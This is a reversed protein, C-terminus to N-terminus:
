LVMGATVPDIKLRSRDLQAGSKATTAEILAKVPAKEFWLRTEQDGNILHRGLHLLTAVVPVVSPERHLVNLHVSRMMAGLSAAHYPAANWAINATYGESIVFHWTAPPIVVLEGPRQVIEYM